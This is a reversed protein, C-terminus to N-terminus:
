EDAEVKVPPVKKAKKLMSVTVGHANKSHAGRADNSKFIKGCILCKVNQPPRHANNFHRVANSMKSLTKNCIVCLVKGDALPVIEGAVEEEGTYDNPEEPNEIKDPDPKINQGENLGANSRKGKGPNQKQKKAPPTEPDPTEPNEGLGKIEMEQCASMFAEFHAKEVTTEGYYIFQVIKQLVEFRIGPLLIEDPNAANKLDKIRKKLYPSAAGLILKHANMRKKESVLCIDFFDPDNTLDLIELKGTKRKIREM